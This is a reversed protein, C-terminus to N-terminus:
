REDSFLWVPGILLIVTQVFALAGQKSLPPPSHGGTRGYAGAM